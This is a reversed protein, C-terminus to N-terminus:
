VLKTYLPEIKVRCSRQLQKGDRSYGSGAADLKITPEVYGSEDAVFNQQVLGVLHPLAADYEVKSQDTFKASEAELAKVVNAPKGILSVSWSM